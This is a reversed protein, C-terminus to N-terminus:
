VFGARAPRFGNEVSLYAFGSIWKNQKVLYLM